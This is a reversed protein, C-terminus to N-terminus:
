KGEPKAAQPQNITKLGEALEIRLAKEVMRPMNGALWERLMPRLLEAVIDEVTRVGVATESSAALATAMGQAVFMEPASSATPLEPAQEPAAAVPAPPSKLDPQSSAATFDQEAASNPVSAETKAIAVKAAVVKPSRQALSAATGSAVKAAATGANDDPKKAVESPLPVEVRGLASQEGTAAEKPPASAQQQTEAAAASPASSVALGAMLAGFASRVAKSGEPDVLDANLDDDAAQDSVDKGATVDAPAEQEANPRSGTDSALAIVPSKQDAVGADAADPLTEKTEGKIPEAGNLHPADATESPKGTRAELMRDFAESRASKHGSAQQADPSTQSAAAPSAPKHDDRSPVIVGFDMSPARGADADATPFSSAVPPADDLLDELDDLDAVATSPPPPVKRATPQGVSPRPTASSAGSRLADALRGFLEDPNKAPPTANATSNASSPTDAPPAAFSDAADFDDAAKAPKPPAPAAGPAPSVASRPQPGLNPRGSALEPSLSAQAQQPKAVPQPQMPKPAAPEHAASAVPAPRDAPKPCEGTAPEESIIKRISALIEEMSPETATQARSM